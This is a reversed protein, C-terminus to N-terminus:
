EGRLEFHLVFLANIACHALHHVGSEPDLKEGCRYSFLHRCLASFYRAKADPVRKWSDESYKRAGYTLVRVCERLPRFPLLDWRDKGDDFKPGDQCFVGAFVSHWDSSPASPQTKTIPEYEDEIADLTSLDVWLDLQGDDAM